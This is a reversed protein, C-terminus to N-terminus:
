FRHTIPALESPVCCRSVTWKPLGLDLIVLDFGHSELASLAMQGDSVHEVLYNAQKLAVQLGSALLPDDEVLLIRM